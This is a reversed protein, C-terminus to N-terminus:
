EVGQEAQIRTVEGHVFIAPAERQGTSSCGAVAAFVTAVGLARLSM